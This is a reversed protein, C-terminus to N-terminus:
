GEYNERVKGILRKIKELSKVRLGNKDITEISSSVDIGEPRIVTIGELVNDESVGGALFVKCKIKSKDINIWAFQKGSGPNVGDLVIGDVEYDIYQNLTKENLISIGKWIEISPNINARLEKIFDMDEDGHLQIVDLFVNDVIDLIENANNNRFVGVKQITKDLNKILDVVVEKSVKRKSEAFIFGVYDPMVENMYDVEILKIIGCIKIKM